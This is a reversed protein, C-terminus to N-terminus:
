NSYLAIGENRWGAKVLQSQEYSSVTYNHMGNNPNYARYVPINGGSYFSIGEYRWGVKVLSDREYTSSTYFHYGANPNYLRYIPAANTSTPAYWGVGELTWGTNGLQQAEYSSETYFHEGSNPNYVRYVPVKNLATPTFTNNYDISVDLAHNQLNNTGQFYMQSSYQWAGFTSNSTNSDAWGNKSSTTPNSTPTGLPYQAVWLNRTGLTQSNLTNVTSSNPQTTSIWGKSAYYRVNSFGSAQLTKQFVQSVATWNYAKSPYEADEIMVSNQPIALSKAVKVFYAAEYQIQTPDDVFHYFATNLGAATAMQLQSKAYPNTYNQGETLKIVITKVGDKKLQNFDAQTMWNQYIAIDVTDKRPLTSDTSTLNIPNPLIAAATTATTTTELRISSNSTSQEQNQKTFTGMSYNSQGSVDQAHVQVAILSIPLLIDILLLKKLKM